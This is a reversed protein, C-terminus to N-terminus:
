VDNFHEEATRLALPGFEKEVEIENMRSKQAIDKCRAHSERVTWSVDQSTKQFSSVQGVIDCCDKKNDWLGQYQFYDKEGNGIYCTTFRLGVERAQKGLTRYYHAIERDSFRRDAHHKQLEPLFLGGVDFKTAESMRRIAFSSLRVFGAIVTKVQAEKLEPLFADDFIPFEPINQEGGFRKVCNEYDSFYGDPRTPFLPNARVATLIGADALKSLAALRRRYSPAGPEVVRTLANNNGSISMQVSCLEPQLLGIYDDHAVLDSRTFIVHPYQYHFLIKLLEQTVKYKTDLWMFSDSMSGIRVPIRKELIDRWRSKKDTEFVTHMIKRVEALDVPFPQPKNWIGHSTLQDKAYCFECNHFCGRGYSDIEFAYHCKSCSTHYNVLRFTTKFYAPYRSKEKLGQEIRDYVSWNFTDPYSCGQLTKLKERMLTEIPGYKKEPAPTAKTAVTAPSPMPTRQRTGPFLVVKAAGLSSKQPPNEITEM